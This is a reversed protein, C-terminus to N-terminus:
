ASVSLLRQTLQYENNVTFRECASTAHCGVKLVVRRRSVSNRLLGPAFYGNMMMHCVKQLEQYM